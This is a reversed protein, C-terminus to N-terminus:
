ERRMDAMQQVSREMQEEIPKIDWWYGRTDDGFEGATFLLDAARRILDLAESELLYMAAWGDGAGNRNVQRIHEATRLREAVDTLREPIDRM